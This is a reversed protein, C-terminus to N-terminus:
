HTITMGRCLHKVSRADRKPVFLVEALQLKIDADEAAYEAVDALPVESSDGM